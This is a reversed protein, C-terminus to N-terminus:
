PQLKVWRAVSPVGNDSILFCMYWGPPATRANYPNSPSPPALPTTFQAILAPESPPVTEFVTTALQIYRQDFDFHHTTSGPRMLVVKSVTAGADISFQVNYTTNYALAAPPDTVYVPRPLGQTLYPPEYIVYDWFRRDGGGLLVRGDALLL